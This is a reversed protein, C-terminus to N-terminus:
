KTQGPFVKAIAKDWLAQPNTKDNAKGGGNADIESNKGEDLAKRMEERGSKEAAERAEEASLGEGAPAKPTAGLVDIIDEATMAPKGLLKAALDERGAYHESAFVANMRESAAKFGEDHGKTKAADIAAKTEDDMKRDKKTSTTKEDGPDDDPRDEIEEEVVDAARTRHAALRTSLAM